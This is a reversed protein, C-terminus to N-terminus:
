RIVSVAPHSVIALKDGIKFKMNEWESMIYNVTCGVAILLIIVPHLMSIVSGFLIFKFVSSFMNAFDMPFHVGATHNNNTAQYARENIKQVEPDYDLYWDRNCRSCMNIYMMRM